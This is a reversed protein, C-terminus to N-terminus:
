NYEWFTPVGDVMRWFSGQETPENESYYLVWGLGDNENGISIKSFEEETGMYYIRFFPDGCNKFAKNGISKVKTGLVLTELAGCGELASAPITEVNTLYLSQTTM